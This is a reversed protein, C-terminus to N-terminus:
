ESRVTGQAEEEDWIVEFEIAHSAKMAALVSQTVM